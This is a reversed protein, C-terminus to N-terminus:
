AINSPCLDVRDVAVARELRVEFRHVENHRRRLVDLPDDAVERAPPLLVGGGVEEEDFTRGPIGSHFPDAYQIVM